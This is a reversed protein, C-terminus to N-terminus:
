VLIIWLVVVHLLIVFELLGASKLLFHYDFELSLFVPLVEVVMVPPLLFRCYIKLRALFNSLNQFAVVFLCVGVPIM